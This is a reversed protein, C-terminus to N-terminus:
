ARKSRTLDEEEVKGEEESRGQELSGWSKDISLFKSRSRSREDRKELKQGNSALSAAPQKAHEVALDRM